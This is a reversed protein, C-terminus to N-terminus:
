NTTEEPENTKLFSEIKKARSEHKDGSTKNGLIRETKALDKLLQVFIINNPSRYALANQYFFSTM